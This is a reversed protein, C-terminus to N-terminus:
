TRAEDNRYSYRCIRGQEDKFYTKKTHTRMGHTMKTQRSLSSISANVEQFLRLTEQLIVEEDADEGKEGRFGM